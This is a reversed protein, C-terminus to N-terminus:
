ARIRVPAGLPIHALLWRMDRDGARLCGSSAATGLTSDDPTGHIALRDGGGWGQPVNPQRGSLALACCGYPSRGGSIRLLDTVAFRGTPTPSGPRGIAVTVRRVVRGDRRVVLRRESLDVHLTYPEWLLTASDAPIWGARSNPMHHSLVGLWRGRRAVVAMVRESGFGTRTGLTRVVPGGPRARLQTRRHLQAGVARGLGLQPTPAARRAERPPAPPAAARPRPPADDGATALLVGAVVGACALAALAGALRRRTV